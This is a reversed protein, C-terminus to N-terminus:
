RFTKSLKGRDPVFDDDMQEEEGSLGHASFSYNEIIKKIERDSLTPYDAQNPNDTGELLKHVSLDGDQDLSLDDYDETNKHM